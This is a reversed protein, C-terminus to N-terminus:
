GSNESIQLINIHTMSSNLVFQMAPKTSKIAYKESVHLTISRVKKTQKNTIQIKVLCVFVFITYTVM